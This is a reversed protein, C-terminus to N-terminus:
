VPAQQQQQKKKKKKVAAVKIASPIIPQLEIGTTTKSHNILKSLIV